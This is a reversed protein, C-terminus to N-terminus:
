SEDMPARIRSVAAAVRCVAEDIEDETTAAGFSFRISSRLLNEPVGMAVLTPSPQTSGSACAAGLSACVGLL